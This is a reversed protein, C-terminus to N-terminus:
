PIIRFGIDINEFLPEAIGYLETMLTESPFDGAFALAMVAGFQQDTMELCIVKNEPINAIVVEWLSARRTAHISQDEFQLKMELM